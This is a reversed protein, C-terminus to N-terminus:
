HFTSLLELADMGRSIPKITYYQASSMKLNQKIGTSKLLDFTAGGVFLIKHKKTYDFYEKAQNILVCMYIDKYEESGKYCTTYPGLISMHQWIVNELKAYPYSGRVEIKIKENNEKEIVIDVHNDYNIFEENKAIAPIEKKQFYKNLLYTLLEESMTGLYKDKLLTEEDRIYGATNMQNTNMEKIKGKIKELLNWDKQINEPDLTFSIVNFKEKGNLNSPKLLTEIQIKM